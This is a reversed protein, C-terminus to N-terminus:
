SFLDKDVDNVCLPCPRYGGAYSEAGQTTDFLHVFYIVKGELAYSQQMNPIYPFIVEGRERRRAAEDSAEFRTLM